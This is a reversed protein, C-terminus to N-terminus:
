VAKRRADAGAGPSRTDLVEIGQASLGLLYRCDDWEVVALSRKEGLALSQEL